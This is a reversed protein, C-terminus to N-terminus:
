AQRQDRYLFILLETGSITQTREIKYGTRVHENLLDTLASTSLASLDVSIVKYGITMDPM